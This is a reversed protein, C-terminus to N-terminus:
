ENTIVDTDPAVVSMFTLATATTTTSGLAATADRLRNRFRDYQENISKVTDRYPNDFRTNASKGDTVQKAAFLPLSSTLHKALAYTAFLRAAQLFRQENTTPTPLAITTTYTDPLTSNIDTLEVDLLDAYTPLALTTDELDDTSVGLAARIDAYTTYVTIAPTPM